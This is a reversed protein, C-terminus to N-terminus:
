SGVAAGHSMLSTTEGQGFSRYAIRSGLWLSHANNIPKGNGKPVEEFRAEFGNDSVETLAQSAQTTQPPRSSLSSASLQSAQSGQSVQPAQPIHHEFPLLSNDFPPETPRSTALSNVPVSSQDSATSPTADIKNSATAIASEFSRDQPDRQLWEVAGPYPHYRGVPASGIAVAAPLGAEGAPTADLPRPRTSM